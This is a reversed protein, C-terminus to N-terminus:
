GCGGGGEAKKKKAPATAAPAPEAPASVNSGGGLSIGPTESVIKAYDYKAVENYYEGSNIGFNDIINNKIFKYGGLAVMVNERGVQRLISGAIVAQESNEGIIIVQKNSPLEAECTEKDVLTAFPINISGEVHGAIYQDPKRIDILQYSTNSSDHAYILEALVSPSIINDTSAMELTQKPSIAYKANSPSKSCSALAIAISSIVLIINRM